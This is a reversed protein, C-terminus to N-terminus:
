EIDHDSLKLTSFRTLVATYFVRQQYSFLENALM